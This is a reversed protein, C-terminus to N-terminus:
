VYGFAARDRLVETFAAAPPLMRPRAARNRGLWAKADRVPLEKDRKDFEWAYLGGLTSLRLHICVHETLDRPTQPLAKGALHVPAAVEVMRMAPDIPTAIMDKAVTGGLRVGADFREAV